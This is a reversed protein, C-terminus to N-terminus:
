FTVRCRIFGTRTRPLARTYTLPNLRYDTDTLNLVGISIESRNHQFRRGTQFNMQGFSDTSTSGSTTGTADQRYWGAEARAFWGAPSNWNAQLTFEDLTVEDHTDIAAIVPVQPFRRQLGADTRRFSAGLAYQDGILQNIGANWTTEQYALQETTGGPLVAFGPFPFIPAILFDFAGTVREVDEQLRDFSISWWTRSTLNGDVNLGLNKYVPAEVSGAFAESIITRFAQNFGALQVPELRVSEDFSVGGLSETYAGRFTIWSRPAFTFGLKSSFRDHEV